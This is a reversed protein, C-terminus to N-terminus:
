PIVEAEVQTSVISVKVVWTVFECFCIQINLRKVGRNASDGRHLVILKDSFLLHDESACNTVMTRSETIHWYLPHQVDEIIGAEPLFAFVLLSSLPIHVYLVLEYRIKIVYTKLHLMM